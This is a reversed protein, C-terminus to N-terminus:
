DKVPEPSLPVSSGPALASQCSTSGVAGREGVDPVRQLGVVAVQEVDLRPADTM